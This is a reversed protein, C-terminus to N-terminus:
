FHPGLAPTVHARSDRGFPDYPWDGLFEPVVSAMLFVAVAVTVLILPRKSRTRSPHRVRKAMLRWDVPYAAMLVGAVLLAILAVPLLRGDPSARYWDFVRLVTAGLVVLWLGSLRPRALAVPVLLLVLYHSWVVPTLVLSAALALTLSQRDRDFSMRSRDRGPTVFLALLLAGVLVATVEAFKPTSGLSHALAVFSFSRFEQRVAVQDLLSPYQTLGAFGIAAWPIFVFGITFVVSFAAARTRRTIVLWLVLPWLLLKASVAAGLALGAIWPRDRFRWMAAVLVLLVPGIAGYELSDRTFPWFLGVVYCRWDRVGLLWLAAGICAVLVVSWVMAADQGTPLLSLPSIAIALIPPYVYGLTEGLGQVDLYPSKGDLIKGGAEIFVGGDPPVWRGALAWLAPDYFLRALVRAALVLAVAAVLACSTAFAQRAGRTVIM